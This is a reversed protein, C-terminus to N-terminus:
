KKGDTYLMRKSITEKANSLEIIYLGPAQLDKAQLDFSQKGKEFSQRRQLHVKGSVDYITITTESPEPITFQITTNTAFPNPHNQLNLQSHTWNSPQATAKTLVPLDSPSTAKDGCHGQPDDVYVFTTCRSANDSLDMLLLEAKHMGRQQCGFEIKAAAPMGAVPDIRMQLQAIACNDYSFQSLDEARLSVKLNAGLDLSKGNICRAVPKSCDKVEFLYDCSASQGCADRVRWYVRHKGPPFEGELSARRGADNISGDDDLDLQFYYDLQDSPTHDDAVQITLQIPSPECNHKQLCFLQDACESSFTPALNDPCNSAGLVSVVGVLLLSSLLFRLCLSTFHTNYTNTANM